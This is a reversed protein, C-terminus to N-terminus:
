QATVKPSKMERLEMNGAQQFKRGRILQGHRGDRKLLTSNRKCSYFDRWGEEQMILYICVLGGLLM